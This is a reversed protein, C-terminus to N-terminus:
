AEPSGDELPPAAHPLSEPTIEDWLTVSVSTMAPRVGPMRTRDLEDADEGNRQAGSSEGRSLSSDLAMKVVYDL